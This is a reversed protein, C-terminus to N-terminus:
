FLCVPLVCTPHSITRRERGYVRRGTGGASEDVLGHLEHGPQRRPLMRQRLRLRLHRGAPSQHLHRRHQPQGRLRQRLLVARGGQWRRLSILLVYCPRWSLDTSQSILLAALVVLSVPWPSRNRRACSCASWLAPSSRRCRKTWRGAWTGRGGAACGRGKCVPRASTSGSRRGRSCRATTAASRLTARGTSTWCAGCVRGSTSSWLLCPMPTLLAAWRSVDCAAASVWGVLM